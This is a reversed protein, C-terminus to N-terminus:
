LMEIPSTLSTPHPPPQQEDNMSLTASPPSSEADVDVVDVVVTTPTAAAVAPQKSAKEATVVGVLQDLLSDIESSLAKIKACRSRQQKWAQLQARVLDARCYFHQQIVAAFEPYLGGCTTNSSSSAADKRMMAQVLADKMAHQLTFQRIQHNYAASKQKMGPLSPHYGPENFFPEPVLVLGQISILVQLLTSQNAVWGPGNWTGLLSLCVKGNNYLNPNFRVQGGGTTLFKLKPPNRPYDYLYCDFLFIGHQYPTEEPGTILIRLLDLRSELARVFISSSPQIPLNLKYELLENFISHSARTAKPEHEFAHAPHFSDCFDMRLPGLAQKYTDAPSQPKNNNDSPSLLSSTAEEVNIVDSSCPLSAHPQPPTKRQRKKTRPFSATAAAAAIDDSLDIVENTATGSSSSSTRTTTAAPKRSMAHSADGDDETLDITSIEVAEADDSKHPHNMATTTADM